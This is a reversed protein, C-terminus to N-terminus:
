VRYYPPQILYGYGLKTLARENVSDDRGQSGRWGYKEREAVFEVLLADDRGFLETYEEAMEKLVWDGPVPCEKRCPHHLCEVKPEPPLPGETWVFHQVQSTGDQLQVEKSFIGCGCLKPGIHHLNSDCSWLPNRCSVPASRLICMIPKDQLDKRFPLTEKIEARHWPSSGLFEHALTIAHVDFPSLIDEPWHEM